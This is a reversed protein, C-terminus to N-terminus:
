RPGRCAFVAPRAFGPSGLYVHGHPRRRSGRRASCAQLLNVRLACRKADPITPQELIPAKFLRHFAATSDLAAPETFKGTTM